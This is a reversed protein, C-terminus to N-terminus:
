FQTKRTARVEFFVKNATGNFDNNYIKLAQWGESNLKYTKKSAAVSTLTTVTSYNYSSSQDIIGAPIEWGSYNVGYFALANTSDANANYVDIYCNEYGAIDFVATTDGYYTSDKQVRQQAFSFQSLLVTLLLALVFINRKHM